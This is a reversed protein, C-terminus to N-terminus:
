ANTTDLIENLDKLREYQSSAAIFLYADLCDFYSALDDDVEVRFPKPRLHAHKLFWKKTDRWETLFNRPIKEIDSYDLFTSFFLGDAQSSRIQGSKHETILNTIQKCVEIPIFHGQPATNTSVEDSFQWEDLWDEELKDVHQQYQVRGKDIGAVTTALINMLDRGTHAVFTVYGSPRQNILFISGKYADAFVPLSLDDKLWAYVREQNVTLM